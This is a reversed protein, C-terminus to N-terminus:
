EAKPNGNFILDPTTGSPVGTVVGKNAKEKMHECVKDGKIGELAMYTAALGVAHPCAMSTGSYTETKGGPMTSLIRSGPAQLDVIKGHNSFSSKADKDDTAGITCVEPAGAPSFGAADENSNGAAAGVFVGKKVLAASADRLAQHEGQAGLSMNVAVGKPCKRKGSDTIVEELASIIGDLMGSGQNDLVKFGYLASKKAVGYTKSGVIGACHTGHGHGDTEEGEIWSKVQQARGEFEPHKDDIGTDLVYVCVGEGATKEYSYTTKGPKKNSVRAPGWEAKEQTVWDSSSSMQMGAPTAQEGQEELAFTFIASEEVYEVDPHTRVRQLTEKDMSASFGRMVNSYVNSPEAGLLGVVSNFAGIDSKNKLKVIYKGNNEGHAIFRAGQPDSSPAALAVTALALVNSFHM